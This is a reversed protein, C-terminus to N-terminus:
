GSSPPRRIAPAAAVAAVVLKKGGVVRATSSATRDQYAAEGVGDVQAALPVKSLTPVDDSEM